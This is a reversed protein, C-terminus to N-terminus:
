GHDFEKKEHETLCGGCTPCLGGAWDVLQERQRALDAEAAALKVLASPGVSVQVELALALALSAALLETAEIRPPEPAALASAAEMAPLLRRLKSLKRGADILGDCGVLSPAEMLKEPASLAATDQSRALAKIAGALLDTSQPNSTHQMAAPEDLAAVVRARVLAPCAERLHEVALLEPTAPVFAELRIEALTSAARLFAARRALEDVPVVRPAEQEPWDELGFGAEISSALKAARSLAAGLAEKARVKSELDSGTRRLNVLDDEVADLVGLAALERGIAAGEAEGDRALRADLLNREKNKAILRQLHASERGVALISARRSPAQDLLFVPSKQNAFAIDLDETRAIKAVHDIWEPAGDKPSSDQVPEAQGPVRYRWRQKPSKKLYREVDLVALDHFTAQVSFLLKDHAIASDTGSGYFLARLASVVASKGTNNDGVLCTVGPSLPISTDEHSMYDRLRLERIGSLAGDWQASDFDGQPRAELKGGRVALCVQSSFSAFAAGDHHSILLVQIQLDKAIQGIVNAFKPVLEPKIWCDPEDLVLFPYAGSRALAIVRLGASLINTLAGGNGDLISERKGAVTAMEIDLSPLGRATKLTLAVSKEGGLVDHVVASLLEEYLGVSKQHCSEQLRELFEQVNPQRAMRSKASGVMASLQDMRLRRMEQRSRLGALREGERALNPALGALENLPMLM